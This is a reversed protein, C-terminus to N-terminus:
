VCTAAIEASYKQSHKPRALGDIVLREYQEVWRTITSKSLDSARGFAESGLGRELYKEMLDLKQEVTYKRRKM